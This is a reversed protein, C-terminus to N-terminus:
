WKEQPSQTNEKWHYIQSPPNRTLREPPSRNSQSQPGKQGVECYYRQRREPFSDGM